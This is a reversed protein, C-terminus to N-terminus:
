SCFLFVNIVTMQKLLLVKLLLWSDKKSFFFQKAGICPIESEQFIEGNEGQEVNYKHIEM